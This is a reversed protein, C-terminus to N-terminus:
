IKSIEKLDKIIEAWGAWDIKGLAVDVEDKYRSLEAQLFSQHVNMDHSMCERFRIFEEKLHNNLSEM